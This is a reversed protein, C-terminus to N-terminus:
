ANVKLDKQHIDIDAASIIAQVYAFLEAQALENEIVNRYVTKDKDSVTSTKGPIISLVKVVAFNNNQMKAVSIHDKSLVFTQQLIENPISDSFRGVLAKTLIVGFRKQIDKIPQNEELAQKLEEASQKARQTAKEQILIKNIAQSVEELPKQNEPINTSIRLVVASKGQDLKILDSNNGGKLVDDSFAAAIVEPNGQIGSKKDYNQTFFDSAHVQLGFNKAIPNLTDPHEYALQSMEELTTTWQQTAIEHVYAEKIEKKVDSYQKNVAAEHDVLFYVIYSDKGTKFLKTVHGLRTVALAQAVDRTLRDATLWVKEQVLRVTSVDDVSHKKESLRDIQKIIESESLASNMSFINVQWREPKDYRASHEGYYSILEKETPKVRELLDSFRLMVYSIKVQEPSIYDDKHQMYYTELDQRSIPDIDNSNAPIITYLISRKQRLLSITDLLELETSFSSMQLGQSWQAMVM